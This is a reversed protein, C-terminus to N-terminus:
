FYNTIKIIDLHHAYTELHYIYADHSLKSACQHNPASFTFDSVAKNRWVWDVSELFEKVLTIMSVMGLSTKTISKIDLKKSISIEFIANLIYNKYM